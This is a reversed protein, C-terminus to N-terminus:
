VVSKRDLIQRDQAAHRGEDDGEDGQRPPARRAGRARRAGPAGGVGGCGVGKGRRALYKHVHKAAAETVTVSM